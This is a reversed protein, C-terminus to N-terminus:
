LFYFQFVVGITYKVLGKSDLRALPPFRASARLAPFLGGQLPGLVDGLACKAQRGGQDVAGASLRRLFTVM